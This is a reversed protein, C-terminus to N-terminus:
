LWWGYQDHMVGLAICAALLILVLTSLRMHFVAIM